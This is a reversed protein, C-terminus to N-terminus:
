AHASTNTSSGCTGRSLSPCGAVTKVSAPPVGERCRDAEDRRLGLERRAVHLRGFVARLEDVAHLDGDVVAVAHELLAHRDFRFNRKLSRRLELWPQAARREIADRLLVAVDDGHALQTMDTSRPSINPRIPGSPAPLVVVIRSIHPRSFTSAPVTRTSPRSGTVRAGRVDRLRDAIERLPEAQVAIEADVLVDREEGLNVAQAHAIRAILAPARPQELQRLQRRKAIPQGVLQGAAHLLLQRQGARQHVLRLDDQEVLRRGADIRHRAALEPLQQRLKQALADRDQHRRRIEVLGLAARAHRQQVFAPQQREVRRGRQAGAQWPSTMSTIAARDRGRWAPAALPQRADDVHLQEALARVHLSSGPEGNARDRRPQGGRQRLGADLRFAHPAHRRREFVHEDRAHGFSAAHCSAVNMFRTTSRREHQQETERRADCPALRGDAQRQVVRNRAAEVGAM